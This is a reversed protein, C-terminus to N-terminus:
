SFIGPKIDGIRVGVRSSLTLYSNRSQIFYAPGVMLRVKGGCKEKVPLTYVIFFRATGLYATTNKNIFAAGQSIEVRKKFGGCFETSPFIPKVNRIHNIWAMANDGAIPLMDQFCRQKGQNSPDDIFEESIKKVLTKFENYREPYTTRFVEVISDNIHRSNPNSPPTCKGLLIALSTIKDAYEKAKAKCAPDECCQANANFFLVLGIFALFIKKNKLM